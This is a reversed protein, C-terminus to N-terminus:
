YKVKEIVIKNKIVKIDIGRTEQNIGLAELM